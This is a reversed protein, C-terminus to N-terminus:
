QKSYSQLWHNYNYNNTWKKTILEDNCGYNYIHQVQHWKIVTNVYQCYSRTTSRMYKFQMKFYSAQCNFRMWRQMTISTTQNCNLLKKTHNVLSVVTKPGDFSAPFWQKELLREKLGLRCFLINASLMKHKWTPLHLPRPPSIPSFAALGAVVTWAQTDVNTLTVGNSIKVAM